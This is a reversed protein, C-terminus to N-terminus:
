PTVTITGKMTSPHFICHYHIVGPSGFTQTVPPTTSADFQPTEQFADSASDGVLRHPVGPNTKVTWQVTDGAKIALQAPDFHPSPGLVNQIVTQAAHTSEPLLLSLSTYLTLAALGGLSASVFLQKLM